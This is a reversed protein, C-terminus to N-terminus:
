LTSLYLLADVSFLHNEHHIVIGGEYKEVIRKVSKLGLGHKDSDPKSSIIEGNEYKVEQVYPNTIQLILRNHSVVVKLYLSRQDSPVIQLAELANDVLNGILISLDAVNMELEAPVAIDTKVDADNLIAAQLKYNIISDVALNGTVSRLTNKEMVGSLERIADDAESLQGADLYRCIGLMRNKLDHRFIQLEKTSEEMMRCQKSYLENEQKLLAHEKQKIYNRSLSDYLYFTVVNLALIMIASVIFWGKSVDGGAIISQLTITFIPVAFTAGWELISVTQSKRLIRIHFVIQALMYTLIRMMILGVASSYSGKNFVSFRFYDTFAGVLVEPILMFLLTFAACLICKRTDTSYTLSILFLAIFNISLTLVPIDFLLYFLSTSFFYLLYAGVCIIRNTRREEFFTHMFRHISVLLFINTIFYAAFYTSDHM